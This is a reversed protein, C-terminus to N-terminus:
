GASWTKVACARSERHLPARASSCRRSGAQRRRCSKQDVPRGARHRETKLLTSSDLAQGPIGQGARKRGVVSHIRERDNLYWRGRPMRVMAPGPRWCGPETRRAFRVHELRGGLRNDLPKAAQPWFQSAAAQVAVGVAIRDERTEGAEHRDAEVVAGEEPRAADPLIRRPAWRAGRLAPVRAFDITLVRRVALEVLGIPKWSRATTPPPGAPSAAASLPPWPRRRREAPRHSGPVQSADSQGISAGVGLALEAASAADDIPRSPRPRRRASLM